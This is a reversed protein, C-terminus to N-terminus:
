LKYIYSCGVKRYSFRKKGTKSEADRFAELITDGYGVIEESDIDIAVIKGLYDKELVEKFKSYILDAKVVIQRMKLERKLELVDKELREVKKQLPSKPTEHLGIDMIRKFADYISKHTMDVGPARSFESLFVDALDIGAKKGIVREYLEKENVSM